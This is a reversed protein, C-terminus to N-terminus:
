KESFNRLKIGKKAYGNRIRYYCQRVTEIREVDIGNMECWAAILKNLKVRSGSLPTIETWLQRLFLDKITEAVAEKGLRGMYNYSEVPKAVSDPIVIAVSEEDGTEVAVNPPQKSIYTRIIANQPSSYPFAVPNGLRNTLWEALYKPLKLYFVYQSMSLINYHLSLSNIM